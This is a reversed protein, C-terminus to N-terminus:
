CINAVSIEGSSLVLDEGTKLCVLLNGMDNIGTVKASVMEGDHMFCIEKGYMLSRKRYEDIIEGDGLKGFSELVGSAIEAALRNRSLEESGLSGVIFILEEPLMEETVTCDVGVGVIISEISGSEFDTVAESLIGCVKKGDIFIDNVWKIQPHKETLKEIARCVAVATAVTIMQPDSINCDPRLIISMYLGAGSPSFFSKGSRGRGATQEEALLITGHAARDLSLKKAQTNTSDTTKLVIIQSSKFKEPLYLRIGEETLLDSQKDLKYGKNTVALIKHGNEELNKVAKWIATRSINLTQALEQGSVFRERENELITLVDKKTSM